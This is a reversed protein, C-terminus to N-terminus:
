PGITQVPTAPTRVPTRNRVPTRTQVPIAPIRTTKPITPTTVGHSTASPTVNFSPVPSNMGLFTLNVGRFGSPVLVFFAVIVVIVCVLAIVAIVAPKRKDSGAFFSTRKPEEKPLAVILPVKEQTDSDDTDAPSIKIPPLDIKQISIEPTVVRDQM